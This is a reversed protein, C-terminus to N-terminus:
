SPCEMDRQLQVLGDVLGIITDAPAHPFIHSDHVPPQKPSGKWRVLLLSSIVLQANPLLRGAIPLPWLCFAKEHGGIIRRRSNRLSRYSARVAM